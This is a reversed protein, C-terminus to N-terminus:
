GQIIHGVGSISKRRCLNQFIGFVTTLMKLILKRIISRSTYDQKDKTNQKPQVNDFIKGQNCILYFCGPM